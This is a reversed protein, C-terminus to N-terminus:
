PFAFKSIKRKDVGRYHGARLLEIFNEETVQESFETYCSGVEQPSHADSGGTIPLGLSQAAEVAQLNMAHMNAGNYGEIATIGRLDLVLEGLSNGPRFPHSPIVIGRAENVIRVLDEVPAHKVSLRDTDVGFVLCHGEAASFEVGRLIMIKKGYVERLREAPESAEYIYHETFVIGDLGREIARLVMEEPDASNDGSSHSHIHLDIKFKMLVAGVTRFLLANLENKGRIFM